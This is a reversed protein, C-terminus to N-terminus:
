CVCVQQILFILVCVHQIPFMVMHLHQIPCMLVCVHWIPSETCVRAPCFMNASIRAPHIELISVKGKCAETGM